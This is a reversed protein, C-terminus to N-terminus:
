FYRSQVASERYKATCNWKQLKFFMNLLADQAISDGYLSVGHVNGHSAAPNQVVRMSIRYVARMKAMPQVWSLATILLGGVQPSSGLYLVLM